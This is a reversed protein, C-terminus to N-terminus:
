PTMRPGSRDRRVELGRRLLSVVVERAGEVLEPYAPSHIEKKEDATMLDPPLAELASAVQRKQGTDLTGLALELANSDLRSAVAVDYIDRIPYKGASAMRLNLKKALIEASSELLVKTGSVWDQSWAKNTVENAAVVTVSTGSLHFECGGEMVQLFSPSLADAAIYFDERRRMIQQVYIGPDVFVDIDTSIRHHWRAELATGGGLRYSDKGLFDTLLPEVTYFADRPGEDLELAAM